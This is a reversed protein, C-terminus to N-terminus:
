GNKDGQKDLDRQKKAVQMRKVDYYYEKLLTSVAVM